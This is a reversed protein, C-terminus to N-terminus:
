QGDPNANYTQTEIMQKADDVEDPAAKRYAAEQKACSKFAAKLVTGIPTRRNANLGQRVKMSTCSEYADSAPSALAPTAALILAAVVATGMILRQARSM